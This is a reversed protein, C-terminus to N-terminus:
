VVLNLCIPGIFCRCAYCWNPIIPFTNVITISFTDAINYSILILFVLNFFYLFSGYFRYFFILNNCAYLIFSLFSKNLFYELTKRTFVVYTPLIFSNYTNFSEVSVTLKSEVQFRSIPFFYKSMIVYKRLQFIIVKFTQM